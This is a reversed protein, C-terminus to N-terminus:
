RPNQRALSLAGQGLGIVVAGRAMVTEALEAFGLVSGIGAQPESGLGADPFRIDVIPARADYITATGNTAYEQAFKYAEGIPVILGSMVVVEQALNGRLDRKRVDMRCNIAVAFSAAIALLADRDEISFGEGLLAPLQIENLLTDIM